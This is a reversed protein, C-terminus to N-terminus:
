GLNREPLGRLRMVERAIEEVALYSADITRWGQGLMLRHVSRVERKVSELDTYDGGADVGLHRVRAERVTILRVPNVVLGIVKEKPLAVLAPPPPQDPVLPVNAAKVGQYALFFCTSSKAARSVGVLVVDARALGDPRRGDDHKLTFDIADRRDFEDRESAYLLGPEARPAREFLDHLASLSPGLLDVVPVAQQAAAVHMARRTADAVLTYFIVADQQAAALVIAEVQEPTRVHAERVVAPNQGPFQVLAAQLVAACTAGRGDSVIFLTPPQAANM